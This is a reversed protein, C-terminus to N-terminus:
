PPNGYIYIYMCVYMRIDIYIYIYYASTCWHIYACMHLHTHIYIYIYIYMYKNCTKPNTHVSKHTNNRINNYTGAEQYLTPTYTRTHTQLSM